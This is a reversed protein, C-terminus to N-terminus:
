INNYERFAKVIGLEEMIIPDSIEDKKKLILSNLEREQKETLKYNDM